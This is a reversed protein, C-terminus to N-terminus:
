RRAIVGFGKCTYGLKESLRRGIRTDAILRVVSVYAYQPAAVFILILPNFVSRLFSLRLSSAIGTWFKMQVQILFSLCVGVVGGFPQLLEVSFGARSLLLSLGFRTYRFYDYPAEHEPVLFPTTLILTGGDRLVRYTENLLIQPDTVHEMVESCLVYDVCEDALPIALASGYVDLKANGHPSIPVDIGISEKAIPGYTELFPRDGCGLDLLVGNPPM